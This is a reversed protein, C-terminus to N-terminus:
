FGAGFGVRAGFARQAQFAFIVDHLIAIYHVDPMRPSVKEGCLWLPGLPALANDRHRQSETTPRKRYQETFSTHDPQRLHIRDESADQEAEGSSGSINKAARNDHLPM